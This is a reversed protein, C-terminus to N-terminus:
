LLFGEITPKQFLAKKEGILALARLMFVGRASVPM